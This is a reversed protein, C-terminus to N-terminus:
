SRKLHAEIADLENPAFWEIEKDKRFWTLQRKAYRRTNRKILEVAKELSHKGDFYDFLESYGVTQLANHTKFPYLKKAEAPLGNKIMLDARNNIRNYLEERELHLGIKVIKFSRKKASNKRLTSYPIDSTLCVELARILRRPNSVDVETYYEADLEQLQKQLLEIGEKELKNNLQQRIEENGEPIEDIGNCVANIYLGSGGIMIAMDKTQFIGELCNLADKEFKGATYNEEISLFDIFHHKIGQMEKATPKATGIAMEKYFQRSDASIIETSFDKALEIGLATKGVATPGLIVILTKAM